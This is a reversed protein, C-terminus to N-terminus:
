PAVEGLPRDVWGGSKAFRLTRQADGDVDLKVVLRDAPLGGSVANAWEIVLVGDAAEDVVDLDNFESMSSLRYVDCHTFPMFGSEYRKVLLFSPSTIEEEVGLGEGIGGALVTKGAGLNGVLAIVDGPRLLAAM